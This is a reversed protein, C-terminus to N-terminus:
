SQRSKPLCSSLTSFQVAAILRRQLLVVGAAVEPVVAAVDVFCAVHNVVVDAGRRHWGASVTTIVVRRLAIYVDAEKESSRLRNFHGSQEVIIHRRRAIQEHRRICHNTLVDAVM